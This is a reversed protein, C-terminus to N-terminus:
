HFSDIEVAAGAPSAEAGGPHSDPAARTRGVQRSPVHPKHQRHENNPLIEREVVVCRKELRYTVRAKSCSALLGKTAQRNRRCEMVIDLALRDQAVARWLYHHRGFSRISDEGQCIGFSVTWRFVLRWNPGLYGMLSM